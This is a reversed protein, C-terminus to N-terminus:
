KYSNYNVYINKYESEADFFVLNQPEFHLMSGGFQIGVWSHLEGTKKNEGVVQFSVIGFKKFIDITEKTYDVCNFNKEDYRNHQYAM